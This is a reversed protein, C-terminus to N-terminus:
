QGAEPRRDIVEVSGIPLPECFDCGAPCSAHRALLGGDFAAQIISRKGEDTHVDVGAVSPLLRVDFSWDTEVACSESASPLLTFWYALPGQGYDDDPYTHYVKTGDTLTHFVEPDKWSEDYPM